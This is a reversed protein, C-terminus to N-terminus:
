ARQSIGSGWWGRAKPIRASKEPRMPRGRSVGKQRGRWRGKLVMNGKLSPKLTDLEKTRKRGSLASKGEKLGNKNTKGRLFIKLALVKQNADRVRVRWESTNLKRLDSFM